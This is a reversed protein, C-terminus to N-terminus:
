DGCFVVATDRTRAGRVLALLRSLLVSVEARSITEELHRVHKRGEGILESGLVVTWSEPQRQLGQAAKVLGAELPALQAGSYTADEYPHVALGTVLAVEEFTPGLYAFHRSELTVEPSARRLESGVETEYVDIAM